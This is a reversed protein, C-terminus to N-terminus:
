CWGPCSLAWTGLGGKSRSGVSGWTSGEDLQVALVFRTKKMQCMFVMQRSFGHFLQIHNSLKPAKIGAEIVQSTGLQLERLQRHNCSRLCTNHIGPHLSRPFEQSCTSCDQGYSIMLILQKGRSGLIEQLLHIARVRLHPWNCFITQNQM